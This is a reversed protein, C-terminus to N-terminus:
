TTACPTARRGPQPTAWCWSRRTSPPGACPSPRPWAPWPWCARRRQEAGHAGRQGRRPRLRRGQARRLHGRGPRRDGPRAARQRGAGGPRDGGLHAPGPDAAAGAALRGVPAGAARGGAGARGAARGRHAGDAGPPRSQPPHRPPPYIPSQYIPVRLPPFNTSQHDAAGSLSPQRLPSVLKGIGLKGSVLEELFRLIDADTYARFIRDAPLGADLAGAAIEQARQGKVLLWDVVAAAQQGAQRHAEAEFSGLDWMDGLVAVRLRDRFLALTDLAARMSAPSANVTDDLLLAGHRGPLLRLHGPLPQFSPWRLRSKPWRCALGPGSPWRLWCCRRM